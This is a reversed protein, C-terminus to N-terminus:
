SLLRLPTPMAAILKRKYDQQPAHLIRDAPGHEVLRGDKMVAIEDSVWRVIEIDHGIFLMAFGLRSQLTKLRHLVQMQVTADLASVIEDCILLDPKSLLARAICVRQRQGGSLEHPYRQLHDADLGVATLAQRLRPGQDRYSHPELLEIPERMAQEITLRPNLAGYPNQFIIQCRRRQERSMRFRSAALAQGFLKIDGQTPAALGVILSALTSKGSGSEGLVGLTRGAALSLSVDDLARFSRDFLGRGPYDYSVREVGLVPAAEDEGTAEEPPTELMRRVSVLERTYDQTPNSMIAAADGQEVARGHQMVVIEQALRAAAALDHTIFLIATGLRRQVRALLELIEAQVTADLASTPEDAILVDPEAALAMAIMVRQQQGGSLEHPYASLRQRPEPLGVEALLEEARALAARRSLGLHLRLPEAIQAGVTFVPNLSGMPDQFVCAIQRGRLARLEAPTAGLLDRGDWLIRGSREANDPLLNIISMATVSKGSGSEGVLAVTTEAPIDLSVGSGPAEGGVARGWRPQGGERGLRFRVRLDDLRLLPSPTTGTM